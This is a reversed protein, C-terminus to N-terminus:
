SVLIVNGSGDVSLVKGQSVAPVTGSSANLSAFRLGSNGAALGQGTITTAANGLAISNSTTVFSNTGIAVSNTLGNSANANFGIMVM